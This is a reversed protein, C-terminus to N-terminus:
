CNADRTKGVKEKERNGKVNHFCDRFVADRADHRLVLDNYGIEGDLVQQGGYRRDGERREVDSQTSWLGQM